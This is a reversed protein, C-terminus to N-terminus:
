KKLFLSLIRLLEWGLLFGSTILHQLRLYSSMPLWYTTPLTAPPCTLWLLHLLHPPTITSCSPVSPSCLTNQLLLPSLFLPLHVSSAMIASAFCSLATHDQPTQAYNSRPLITKILIPSLNHTSLPPSLHISLLLHSVCLRLRM